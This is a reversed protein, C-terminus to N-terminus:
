SCPSPVCWPLLMPVLICMKSKDKRWVFICDLWGIKLDQDCHLNVGATFLCGKITEVRWKLFLQAQRYCGGLLFKSDTTLLHGKYALKQLLIFYHQLLFEQSTKHFPWQIDPPHVYIVFCVNYSSPQIKIKVITFNRQYSVHSIFCPYSAVCPDLQRHLRCVFDPWWSVLCPFYM